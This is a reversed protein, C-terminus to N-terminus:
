HVASFDPHSRLLLDAPERREARTKPSFILWLSTRHRFTNFRAAVAAAATVIVAGLCFLSRRDYVNFDDSFDKGLSDHIHALASNSTRFAFQRSILKCLFIHLEHLPKSLSEAAVVTM